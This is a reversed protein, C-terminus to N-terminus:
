NKVTDTGNETHRKLHPMYKDKRAFCKQCYQCKFPKEGTHILKHRNLKYNDTFMKGCEDCKVHKAYSKRKSGRLYESERVTKTQNMSEERSMKNDASSSYKQKSMKDCSAAMAYDVTAVGSNEMPQPCCMLPHDGLPRCGM